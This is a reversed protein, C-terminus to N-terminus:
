LIKLVMVLFLYPIDVFVHVTLMEQTYEQTYLIKDM